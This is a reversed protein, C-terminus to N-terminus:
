IEAGVRHLVIGLRKSVNDDSIFQIGNSMFFTVLLDYTSQRAVSLDGGAELRAITPLSVGSRRALDRQSIGLLARAAVIQKTNVLM